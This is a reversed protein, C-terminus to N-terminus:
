GTAIYMKMQEAEFAIEEMRSKVVDGISVIGALKGNEIVPLHRVRQRTMVEMLTDTTDDPTCVALDVTMVGSVPREGCVAGHEALACVIDRESVIGLVGGDGDTVVLAGIRHSKLLRAAEELTTEPSTTIVERGKRELIQRVQM